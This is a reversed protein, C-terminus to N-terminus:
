CECQGTYCIYCMILGDINFGCDEHKDQTGVLCLCCECHWIQGKAILENMENACSICEHNVEVNM